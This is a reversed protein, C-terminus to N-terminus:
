WRKLPQSSPNAANRQAVQGVVEAPAPGQVAPPDTGWFLQHTDSDPDDASLALQAMFKTM